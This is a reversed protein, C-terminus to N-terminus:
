ASERDIQLILNKLENYQQGVERGFLPDSPEKLAAGIKAWDMATLAREAAPFFRMEEMLMHSRFFEVFGRALDVLKVRPLEVGMLVERVTIDVLGILDRLHAHETELNGILTATRVDRALLQHYIMDEAPHHAVDPFVMFYDIIKRVLDYDPEGARDFTEIQHELATLVKSFNEHEGRLMEIVNPMVAELQDTKDSIM